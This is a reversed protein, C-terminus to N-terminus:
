VFPLNIQAAEIHKKAVSLLTELHFPKQMLFVGEPLIQNEKLAYASSFAIPITALTNPHNKKLYAVFELGNMEPMFYDLIILAPWDKVDMEELSKLAIRPNEFNLTKYGEFELSYSIVDRVDEDDDIICIPHFM